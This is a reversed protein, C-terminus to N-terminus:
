NSAHKKQKFLKIILELEDPGEVVLVVKKGLEAATFAMDIFEFDKFGNCILLADKGQKYSLAAVFETKSGIELGWNLDKGCSIIADIFERRQNVKFPFVGRYKGKYKFEDISDQFSTFM